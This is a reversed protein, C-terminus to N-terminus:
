EIVIEEDGSDYRIVVESGRSVTIGDAAGGIATENALGIDVSASRSEVNIWAADDSSDYSVTLSYPNDSEPLSVTTSVNADTRNSMTDVRELQGAFNQGIVEMESKVASDQASVFVGQLLFLTVSVAIAAIGINILYGVLVSVASDSPTEDGRPKM